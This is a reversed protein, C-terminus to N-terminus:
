EAAEGVDRFEMGNWRLRREPGPPITLTGAGMDVVARLHHLLDSGIIGVIPSIYDPVSALYFFRNTQITVDNGGLRLGQSGSILWIAEDSGLFTNVTMQTDANNLRDADMTNPVLVCSLSCGTDIVWAGTSAGFSGALYPRSGQDWTVTLVTAASRQPIVIDPLIASRQNTCGLGLLMLAIVAIGISCHRKM